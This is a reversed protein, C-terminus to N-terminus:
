ELASFGLETAFAAFYFSLPPYTFTICQKNFMVCEPLRYNNAAIDEFFRLFVAGDNMPFPSDTFFSLRYYTSLLLIFAAWFEVPIQRSLPVYANSDTTPDAYAM